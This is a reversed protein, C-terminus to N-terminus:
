ASTGIRFIFITALAIVNFLLMGANMRARTASRLYRIFIATLLIAGVPIAITVYVLLLNTTACSDGIRCLLVIIAYLLVAVFVMLNLLFFTAAVMGRLRTGKFFSSAYALAVVLIAIGAYGILDMRGSGEGDAGANRVPEEARRAQGSTRGVNEMSRAAAATMGELVIRCEGASPRTAGCVAADGGNRIAV